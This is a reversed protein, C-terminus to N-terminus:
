QYPYQPIAGLRRVFSSPWTKALSVAWKSETKQTRDKILPLHAEALGAKNQAAFEFLLWLRVTFFKSQGELYSWCCRGLVLVLSYVYSSEIQPKM